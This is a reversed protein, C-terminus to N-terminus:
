QSSKKVTSFPVDEENDTINPHRYDSFPMRSSANAKANRAETTTDNQNMKDFFADEDEFRSLNRKKKIHDIDM